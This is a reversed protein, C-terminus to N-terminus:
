EADACEQVQPYWDAPQVADSTAMQIAVVALKRPIREGSRWKRVAGQTVGEGDDGIRRLCENVRAAMDAASVGHQQMWDALTM